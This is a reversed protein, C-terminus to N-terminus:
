LMNLQDRARGAVPSDAHDRTVRELEKKAMEVQGALHYCRAANMLALAAQMQGKNQEAYETFKLAAREFEGQSEYCAAIGSWAAYVLVDVDGHEDLYMQFQKEAEAYRGRSYYRNGLQVLGQAAAPTGPYLDVLQESLQLGEQTQGNSEAILVKGLLASAEARATERSTQMYSIVFLIAAIGVAGGIFLQARAKIYEGAELIWELFKDEELEEKSPRRSRGM